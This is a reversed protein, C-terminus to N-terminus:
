NGSEETESQNDLPSNFAPVEPAVFDEGLSAGGVSDFDFLFPTNSPVLALRVNDALNQIYTYQILYPNSAIQQSVLRLAEAEAQARVLIAEAEGRSEEIVGEARGRAETRVREAQTVARQLEQEEIQKREIADTFQETFNINRVLVTSLQIGNGALETRLRETIQEQMEERGIGYIQEAQFGGIVDRVVSRITPRILGEIYSGPEDSWDIHIQNLDEPTDSLRFILSLDIRVEQGDVSRAEVADTGLRNGETADAMTYNQQGIPYVFPQQVGPIIIHIGSRRPTELEGTLSNFVVLRETANVVRVGAGVVLLVVGVLIGIVALASASRVARGQSAASVVLAIGFFGVAFGVVAFIQIITSINVM